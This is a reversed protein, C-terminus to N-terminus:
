EENIKVEMAYEHILDDTVKNAEYYKNRATNDPSIAPDFSHQKVSRIAKIYVEIKCISKNRTKELREEFILNGSVIAADISPLAERAATLAAMASNHRALAASYARKAAAPDTAQVASPETSEGSHMIAYLCQKGKRRMEALSEEALLAEDKEHKALISLYRNLHAMAVEPSRRSDAKGIAKIIFNPLRTIPKIHKGRIYAKKNM